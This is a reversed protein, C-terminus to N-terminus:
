SVKNLGNDGSYFLRTQKSKQMLILAPLETYARM